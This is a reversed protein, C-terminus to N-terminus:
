RRYIACRRTTAQALTSSADQELAFDNSAHLTFGGNSILQHEQHNSGPERSDQVNSYVVLVRLNTAQLDVELESM